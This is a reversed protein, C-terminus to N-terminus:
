RIDYKECRLDDGIPTSFSERIIDETVGRIVITPIHDQSHHAARVYIKSKSPM